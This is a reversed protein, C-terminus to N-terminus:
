FDALGDDTWRDRGEARDASLDTLGELDTFANTVDRMLQQAEEYGSQCIGLVHFEATNWDGYGKVTMELFSILIVAHRQSTKSEISLMTPRPFSGEGGWRGLAQIMPRYALGLAEMKESTKDLGAFYRGIIGKETLNLETWHNGLAFGFVENMTSTAKKARDIQFSTLHGFEQSHGSEGDPLGDNVWEMLALFTKSIFNRM